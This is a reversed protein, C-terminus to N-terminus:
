SIYFTEWVNDPLPKEPDEYYQCNVTGGGPGTHTTVGTGDLRLYCHPFKMSRFSFTKNKEQRYYFREYTRGGYQCNVTGGGGGNPKTMGSGDMRIYVNNWTASLILVPFTSLPAISPKMAIPYIHFQEYSKPPTYQCNVKGGGPGVPKVVGNGDCRLYVHPFHVSQITVSNLANMRQYFRMIMDPTFRVASNPCGGQSHVGVVTWYGQYWAYVPSGSEGGYTDNMYYIKNLTCNTIPGGTIWMTARPKDGPYGCNTVNLNALETDPIISSWGFGCTDGPLVILGYDYNPDQSAVYEPSAYLDKAYVTITGQAPFTVSISKAYHGDIYTCHGSTVVAICDSEPLNIKFGSAIYRKGDHTVISLFCIWNYPQSTMPDVQVRNDNGCVSEVQQTTRIHFEM